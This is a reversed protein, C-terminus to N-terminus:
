IRSFYVDFRTSKGILQLSPTAGVLPRGLRPRKVTVRRTAVALAALLLADSDEDDGIVQQFAQMEKKAAAAQKGKEPFMPDLFVVEPRAEAPLNALWDQAEAHILTMRAAIPATDPHQQARTLADALLAAAVPSREVLRVTAGLSALVFADRGLGATADVVDLTERGKLGVAKAVPQGKGGGFQRRHAAAGEVFEAWVGGHRDPNCLVLHTPNLELWYGAAPPADWRPLGFRQALADAEACRLPDTCVVGVQALAAPPPLAAAMEPLTAPHPPPSDPTKCRPTPM